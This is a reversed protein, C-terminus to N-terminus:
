LLNSSSDSSIIEWIQFNGSIGNERQKFHRWFSTVIVGVWGLTSFFFNGFISMDYITPFSIERRDFTGKSGYGTFSTSLRHLGRMTPLDYQRWYNQRHNMKIKLDANLFYKM